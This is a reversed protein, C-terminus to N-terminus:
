LNANKCIEEFSQAMDPWERALWKQLSGAKLQQKTHNATLSGCDILLAKGDLIAVNKSLHFDTDVISQQQLQGVLGVVAILVQEAGAKDGQDRLAQLTPLLLEGRRQLIFPTKATDLTHEIGLRDVIQLNQKLKESSPLHLLLLASEERMKEFALKYSAFLAERKKERKELTEKRMFPLKRLHQFKFFKLVYNGDESVLVYTQAGKCLYYFKQGLAKKIVPPLELRDGESSFESTINSILFGDTASHCLRETAYFLLAFLLLKVLRNKALNAVALCSCVICRYLSLFSLTIKRRPAAIRCRRLIDEDNYREMTLDNKNDSKPM